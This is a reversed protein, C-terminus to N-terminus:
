KGDLQFGRSRLCDRACHPLGDSKSEHESIAIRLPTHTAVPVKTAVCGLSFTGMRHLVRYLLVAPKPCSQMLGLAIKCSGTSKRRRNMSRRMAKSADHTLGNHQACM